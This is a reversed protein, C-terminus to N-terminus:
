PRIVEGIPSGNLVPWVSELEIPGPPDFDFVLVDVALGRVSRVTRFLVRGPGDEVWIGEEGNARRVREGPLAFQVVEAFALRAITRTPSLVLVRRGERMDALVGTATYRNM